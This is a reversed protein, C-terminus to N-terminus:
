LALSCAKVTQFQTDPWVCLLQASVGREALRIIPEALRQANWFGNPEAVPANSCVEDTDFLIDTVAQAESM